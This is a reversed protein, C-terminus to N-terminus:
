ARTRSPSARALLARAADLDEPTNANFFPDVGLGQTDDFAFPVEIASNARAFRDVGLQNHAIAAELASKLTLPWIAFTPHRRGGSTAIAPGQERARDLRAVLDRPLFPADVSATAIATAEPVHRETWAIAALLGALPGKPDGAADTVVAAGFARYREIDHNASVIVTEVQPAFRAAVHAILPRGGLDVLGKHGGEPSEAFMRRGQGGALIVGVFGTRTRM